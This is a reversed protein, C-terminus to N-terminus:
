ARGRWARVLRLIKEAGSPDGTDFLVELEHSGAGEGARLRLAGLGVRTAISAGSLRDPRVVTVNVGFALDEPRRRPESAAWLAGRTTAVLLGAPSGCTSARRWGKEREWREPSRVVALPRESGDILPEVESRLYAPTDKWVDSWGLGAESDASGQQGLRRYARVVARFHDMGRSNFPVTHRRPHGSEAHRVVLWGFLLASGLELCSVEELEITAVSRPTAAHPDQSVVLRSSTLGLSHSGPTAGVRFPGDTSEFLPSYLLYHLADGPVLASRVLQSHYGCLQEPSEARFVWGERGSTWRPLRAAPGELHATQAGPKVRLAPAAGAPGEAIPEDEDLFRPSFGRREAM